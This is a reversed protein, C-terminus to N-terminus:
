TGQENNQQQVFIHYLQLSVCIRHLQECTIFDCTCQRDNHRDSIQLVSISYSNNVTTRISDTEKRLKQYQKVNNEDSLTLIGKFIISNLYTVETDNINSQIYIVLYKHSKTEM